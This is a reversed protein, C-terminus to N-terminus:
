PSHATAGLSPPPTTRGWNTPIQSMTFALQATGKLEAHHLWSRNLPAGNLTATAIYDGAGTRTITLTGEEPRKIVIRPFVPANLFYLDQGANPFLGIRSWVFYSSMAGSDDDGPYGKLTFGSDTVQRIWKTALDPRGAYHFLQPALFAPENSIGILGNQMGYDLRRAFTEPGGMLAILRMPQHPVFYSYTWSSGEYFDGKWSGGFAKVDHVPWEGSATKPTIFGKFGDSEANPNWLNEWKKSRAFYTEADAKFGLGAAVQAVCFDNYAYELTFSASMISTPLWGQERYTNKLEPQRSLGERRTDANSKMVKFAANWDIGGIKKVYADAIINDIDNGGQEDGGNSGAVFTDNVVKDVRQREIFSNVTGRVMDPRILTMLPYLTRWTDWVAYHDDWMSAKPAYPAFEGTRDRPMIMSHYLATYFLTKRTEDVEDVRIASLARNWTQRNKERAGAYNWNPLERRLNAQAAKVSQFSIGIKLKVVDGANTRFKAFGGVRDQAKDAKVARIGDSIKGNKWTGVVSPTRDLEAYFYIKYIGWVFGGRYTGFGSVSRGDASWNVQGDEIRGELEPAIDRAISHSADILLSAENSKPYTFQYFVSHASPTFESRVNYKTLRVRYDYATASEESKPSDHETEGVALGIQPSILINGYQGWGTGSVHTQSFGRIPQNPAYGDHGGRPTDPSPHVSAFPLAPGIVASGAGLVGIRPDVFHALDGAAMSQAHACGFPALLLLAWFCLSIRPIQFTMFAVM